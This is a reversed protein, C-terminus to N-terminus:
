VGVAFVSVQLIFPLRDVKGAARRISVRPTPKARVKGAASTLSEATQHTTMWREMLVQTSVWHGGGGELGKEERRGRRWGQRGGGKEERRGERGGEGGGGKGEVRVPVSPAVRKKKNMSKM